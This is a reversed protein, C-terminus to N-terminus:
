GMLGGLMSAITPDQMLVGAGQILANMADTAVKELTEEDAELPNISQTFTLLEGAPVNALTLNTDAHADISVGDANVYLNIVGDYSDSEATSVVPSGIYSLGFSAPEGYETASVDFYVGTSEASAVNRFSFTFESDAEESDVDGVAGSFIFNMCDAGEATYNDAYFSLYAMEGDAEMMLGVETYTGHDDNLTTVSLPIEISEDEVSMILTLDVLAGTEGADYITGNMGVSVLSLVDEISLEEGTAAITENMYSFYEDMYADLAPDLASLSDFIAKMSQPAMTLVTGTATAETDFLTVTYKSDETLTIGLAALVAADDLELGELAAASEMLGAASGMLGSLSNSSADGLSTMAQMLAEELTMGLEAEIMAVIQELPISFGYNMGSLYAKIEGNEFAALASLASAAETSVNATMYGRVGEVDVGGGVSLVVPLTITEGDMTLEFNGISVTAANREAAFATSVLLMSLAVVLALVRSAIKKM